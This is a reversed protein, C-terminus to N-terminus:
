DAVASISLNETKGHNYRQPLPQTPLLRTQLSFLHCKTRDNAAQSIEKTWVSFLISDQSCSVWHSLWKFDSIFWGHM